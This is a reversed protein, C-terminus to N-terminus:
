AAQFELAELQLRWMHRLTLDWSALCVALEVGFSEKPSLCENGKPGGLETASWM